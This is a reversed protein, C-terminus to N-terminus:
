ADGNIRGWVESVFIVRALLEQLADTDLEPFLGVLKERVQDLEEGQRVLEFVPELVQAM